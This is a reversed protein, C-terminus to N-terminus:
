SVGVYSSIDGPSDTELDYNFTYTTNARALYLPDGEIRITSSSQGVIKSLPSGMGISDSDSFMLNALVFNGTNLAAQATLKAKVVTNPNGVTVTLYGSHAGTVGCAGVQSTHQVIDHKGRLEGNSVAGGPRVMIRAAWEYRGPTDLWLSAGLSCTGTSTSRLEVESLLTDALAPASVRRLVLEAYAQQARCSGTVTITVQSPADLVFTSFASTIIKDESPRPSRPAPYTSPGGSYTNTRSM